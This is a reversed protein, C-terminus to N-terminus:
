ICGLERERQMALERERKIPIYVCAGRGKKSEERGTGREARKARAAERRAAIYANGGAASRHM